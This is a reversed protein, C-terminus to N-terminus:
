CTRRARSLGNGVDTTPENLPRPTSGAIPTTRSSPSAPLSLFGGGRRVSNESAEMTHIVILDIRRHSVVKHSSAQKFPCM